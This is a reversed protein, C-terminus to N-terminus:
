CRANSSGISSSEASIKSLVSHTREARLSTATASAAHSRGGRQINEIYTNSVHVSIILCQISEIYITTKKYLVSSVNYRNYIVWGHSTIPYLHPSITILRSCAHSPLTCLISRANIPARLHANHIAWRKTAEVRPGNLHSRQTSHSAKYGLTPDTTMTSIVYNAIGGVIHDGNVVFM